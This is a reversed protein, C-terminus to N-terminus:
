NQVFKLEKKTRKGFVKLARLSFPIEYKDQIKEGDGYLYFVNVTKSDKTKTYAFNGVRYPAVARTAYIADSFISMWRSLIKLEGVARGPLRGDPQPSINLALNGGKAVVDLLM